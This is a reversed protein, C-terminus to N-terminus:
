EEPPAPEGRRTEKLTKLSWGQESVPLGSEDEENLYLNTLIMELGCTGKACLDGRVSWLLRAVDLGNPPLEARLAEGDHSEFQPKFPKSADFQLERKGFVFRSTKFGPRGGSNRTLETAEFVLRRRDPFELSVNVSAPNEDREYRLIFTEGAVTTMSYTDRISRRVHMERNVNIDLMVLGSPDLIQHLATTTFLTGPPVDSPRPAPSSGGAVQLTALVLALFAPKM